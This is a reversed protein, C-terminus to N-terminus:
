IINSVAKLKHWVYGGKIVQKSGDKNVVYCRHRYNHVCTHPNM